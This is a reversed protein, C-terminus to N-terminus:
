DFSKEFCRSWPVDKYHGFRPIEQYGNRPYFRLAEVQLNGTELRLGKIEEARAYHELAVLVSQAAGTGRAAPTAYMRKIEMYEDDLKRLAGCAVPISESPDPIDSDVIPVPYSVVFLAINDATPKIGPEKGTEGYRADLEAQQADRLAAGVPNSWDMEEIRFNEVNPISKKTTTTTVLLPFPRDPDRQVIPIMTTM